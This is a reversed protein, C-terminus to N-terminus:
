KENKMREQIFLQGNSDLMAFFIQNIDAINQKKLNDELWEIDHGSISLNRENLKGDMVIGIPLKTPSTVIHMDERILPSKEAKPIVSLKGSTELIGYEIDSINLYGLIRLEETLDDLNLRQRRLEHEIIQGNMILISPMGCSIKRFRQSKLSLFSILIELLLLTLIPIIGHILPIATDQMPVAALESLMIAVVLEFPQLEGIQRKGMLRMVCVVLLYMIITRFFVVM